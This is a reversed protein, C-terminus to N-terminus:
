NEMKARRGVDPNQGGRPDWVTCSRLHREMITYSLRRGCLQCVAERGMTEQVETEEEKDADPNKSAGVPGAEGAAGVRTEKHM